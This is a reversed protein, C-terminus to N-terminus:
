QVTNFIVAIRPDEKESVTLPNTDLVCDVRDKLNIKIQNLVRKVIENLKQVNQLAIRKHVTKKREQFEVGTSKISQGLTVKEDKKYITVKDDHLKKRTRIRLEVCFPLFFVNSIVFAYFLIFHVRISLSLPYTLIFVINQQLYLSHLVYQSLPPLTSLVRKGKFPISSVLSSVLSAYTTQKLVSIVSCVFVSFTLDEAM